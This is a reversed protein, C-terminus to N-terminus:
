KQTQDKKDELKESEKESKTSITDTKSKEKLAIKADMSKVKSELNEVVGDYMKAVSNELNKGGAGHLWDLTYPPALEVKAYKWAFGLKPKLVSFFM